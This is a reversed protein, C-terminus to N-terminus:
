GHGLLHWKQRFYQLRASGAPQVSTTGGGDLVLGNEPDSASAGGDLTLDYDTCNYITVLRGGGSGSSGGPAGNTFGTITFAASPGTLIFIDGDLPLPVNDNVGSVVSVTLSEPFVPTGYLSTDSPKIRTAGSNIVYRNQGTAGYSLWATNEIDILDCSADCRFFTFPNNAAAIRALSSRIKINRVSAGSAPTFKMGFAAAPTITEAVETTVFEGGILSDVEISAHTAVLASVMAGNAITGTGGTCGLLHTLDKSTYAVIQGGIRVRGADAFGTTSAVGISATPLTYSGHLSTRPSGSLLTTDTDGCNEYSNGQHLLLFNNAGNYRVRLGTTCQTFGNGLMTAQLGVFDIGVRCVSFYCREVHLASLQTKGWTFNCQIGYTCNEFRSNKVALQVSGDNDGLAMTIVLGANTKGYVHVDSVTFHYCGKIGIANSSGPSTATIFSLDRIGGGMLFTGSVTAQVLLCSGSAVRNDIRTLEPGAGYLTLSPSFTTSAAVSFQLSSTVKYTGPPLYVAGRGARSADM